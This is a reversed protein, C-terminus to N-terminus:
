SDPSVRRMMVVGVLLFLAGLISIYLGTTASPSFHSSVIRPLWSEDTASAGDTTSVIFRAELPLYVLAFVAGALAATALAIALPKLGIPGRWRRTLQRWATCCVAIVALAIVWRGLPEDWGRLAFGTGNHLLAHWSLGAGAIVLVAGVLPWFLVGLRPREAHDGRRAVVLWAATTVVAAIFATVIALLAALGGLSGGWSGGRLRRLSGAVALLEARSLDGAISATRTDTWISLSAPVGVQVSVAAPAGGFVGGRIRVFENAGSQDPWTARDFATIPGYTPSGSGSEDLTAQRAGSWVVFENMGRRYILLPAQRDDGYRTIAALRYGSPTTTPVVQSGATVRALATPSFWHFTPSGKALDEVKVQLGADDARSSALRYDPKISFTSAPLPRNVQSQEVHFSTLGGGSTPGQLARVALTVGYQRDVTAVFAPNGDTAPVPVRFAPRGDYTTDSVVTDPHDALLSRLQTALEWVRSADVDMPPAQLADDWGLSYYKAAALKRTSPDNSFFAYSSSHDATADVFVTRTMVLSQAKLDSLARAYAGRSYRAKTKRLADLQARCQSRARAWDSKYRVDVLRDGASTAAFLVTQLTNTSSGLPPDIVMVGQVTTVKALGADIALVPRAAATAVPPRTPFGGLTLVCLFGALALATSFNRRRGAWVRRRPSGGLCQNKRESV